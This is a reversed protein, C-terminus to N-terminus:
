ERPASGGRNKARRQMISNSGVYAIYTENPPLELIAKLSALYYFEIQLCCTTDVMSGVLLSSATFSAFTNGVFHEHCGDVKAARSEEAFRPIPPLRRLGVEGDGLFEDVSAAVM